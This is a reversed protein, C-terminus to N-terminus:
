FLFCYKMFVLSYVSHLTRFSSTPRSFHIPECVSSFTLPLFPEAARSGLLAKLVFLPPSSHRLREALAHMMDDAM